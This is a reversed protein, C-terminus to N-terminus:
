GPTAQVRVPAPAVRGLWERLGVVADDGKGVVGLIHGNLLNKEADTLQHATLVIIPVDRTRNDAKLQSIVGFGDIGPMVLDCIVLDM